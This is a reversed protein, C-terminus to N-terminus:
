VADSKVVDFGGWGFRLGILSGGGELGGSGM